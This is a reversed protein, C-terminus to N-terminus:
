DAALLTTLAALWLLEATRCMCSRCCGSHLLGAPVNWTWRGRGGGVQGLQILPYWHSDQSIYGELWLGEFSVSVDVQLITSLVDRVMGDSGPAPLPGKLCAPKLATLADILDQNTGDLYGICMTSLAPLQEFTPPLLTHGGPVWPKPKQPEPLTELLSQYSTYNYQSANRADQQHLRPTPVAIAPNIRPNSTDLETGHGHDM